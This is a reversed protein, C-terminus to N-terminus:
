ASCELTCIKTGRDRCGRGRCLGECCQGDNVCRDGLATCSLEPPPAPTTAVEESCEGCDLLNGCDDDATGCGLGLSECTGPICPPATTFEAPAATTPEVATVVDTSVAAASSAIAEATTTTAGSPIVCKTLSDDSCVLVGCCHADDV